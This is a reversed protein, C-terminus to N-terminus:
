GIGPTGTAALFQALPAFRIPDGFLLGGGTCNYTTCDADAAMERFIDRYWMYAPDSYFWRQLHPNFERMFVSALREEGVLELAERYYQTASYPTDDYYSFDVGTLAVRQKGLVAHAIMWCATGVNGGANICPWRNARYLARTASNAPDQEPDDLMPNWWYIDMGTARARQVVSASSCSSIAIRMNRGHRDLLELMEDNARMEDAFARDMDQRAFYDDERLHEETLDPDGFWRVIRKAHPDLTVVLDPVIGHKLCYRMASDTVVLAGQYGARKLEGATDTRHLSPGAAIVVASDGRGPPADALARISRGTSFHARNGLENALALERIRHRTIDGMRAVLQRGLSGEGEASSAAQPTATM